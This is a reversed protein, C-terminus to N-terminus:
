ITKRASSGSIQKNICLECVPQNLYSVKHDELNCKIDSLVLLFWDSPSLSGLPLALRHCFSNWLYSVFVLSASTTFPIAQHNQISHWIPTETMLAPVSPSMLWATELVILAAEQEEMEAPPGSAPLESVRSWHLACPFSLRLILFVIPSVVATAQGGM